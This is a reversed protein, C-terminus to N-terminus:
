RTQLIFIQRAYSCVPDASTASTACVVVESPMTPLDAPVAARFQQIGDLPSPEPYSEIYRDHIKVWFRQGLRVGSAHVTLSQNSRIPNEESHIKGDPNFIFMIDPMVPIIEIGFPWSPKGQNSTVVLVREMPVTLPVV